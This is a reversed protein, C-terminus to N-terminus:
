AKGLQDLCVGLERHIEHDYPALEVARRLLREADAPKKEALAFRACELLVTSQDAFREELQKMLPRAQDTGGMRDYCSALGLLPVMEGPRQQLLAAYEGAAERYRRSKYLM